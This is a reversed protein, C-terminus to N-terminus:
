GGRTLFQLWCGTLLIADIGTFVRSRCPQPKARPRTQATARGAQDPWVSPAPAAFLGPHDALGDTASPEIGPLRVTGTQDAMGKTGLTFGPQSHSGIPGRRAGPQDGGEDGTILLTGM